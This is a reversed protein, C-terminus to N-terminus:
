TNMMREKMRPALNDPDLPRLIVKVVAKHDSGMIGEVEFDGDLCFVPQINDQYEGRQFRLQETSDKYYMQRFWGEGPTHETVGTETLGVALSNSHHNFNFPACWMVVLRRKMPQILWSVTGYSGEALGSTKRAVMVERMASAVNSPALTLTGRSIQVHPRVLPFRTWNEVEVGCTVRYGDQLLALTSTGALSHGVTIASAAAHATDMKPQHETLSIATAGADDSGGGNQAALRIWQQLDQHHKAFAVVVLVAIGVGVGMWVGGFGVGMVVVGVAAAAGGVLSPSLARLTPLLTSNLFGMFASSSNIESEDLKLELSNTSSIRREPTTTGPTAEDQHPNESVQTDPPENTEDKPQHSTKTKAKARHGPSTSERQAGDQQDTLCARRGSDDSGLQQLKKYCFLCLIDKRNELAGGEPKLM